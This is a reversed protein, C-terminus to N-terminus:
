FEWCEQGPKLPIYRVNGHTYHVEFELSTSLCCNSSTPWFGSCWNVHFVPARRVTLFALSYIGVSSFYGCGNGPHCLPKSSWSAICTDSYSHSDEGLPAIAMPLLLKSELESLSLVQQSYTDCSRWCFGTVSELSAASTSSHRRQQHCTKTVDMLFINHWSLM